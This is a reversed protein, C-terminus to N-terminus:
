STIGHVLYNSGIVEYVNLEPDITVEIQQAQACTARCHKGMSLIAILRTGRLVVSEIISSGVESQTELLFM